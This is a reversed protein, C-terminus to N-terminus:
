DELDYRFSTMAIKWGFKPLVKRWGARGIGSIYKCGREKAFGILRDQLSMVADLEGSMFVVHLITGRPYTNLQTVIYGEGCESLWSQMLGDQIHGMVDELTYLDGGLRLAKKFRRLHEERPLM